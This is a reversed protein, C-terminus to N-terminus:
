SFGVKGVAWTDGASLAVVDGTCLKAAKLVDSNIIVRRGSRFTFESDGASFASFKRSSISAM